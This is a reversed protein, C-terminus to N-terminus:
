RPVRMPNGVPANTSGGGDAIAPTDAALSLVPWVHAPEEVIILDPEAARLAAVLKSVAETPLTAILMEGARMASLQEGRVFPTDAELAVRILARCKDSRAGILSLARCFAVAADRSADDARLIIPLEVM